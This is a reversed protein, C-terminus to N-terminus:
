QRKNNLTNVEKTKVKDKNKITKAEQSSEKKDVNVDVCETM